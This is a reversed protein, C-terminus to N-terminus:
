YWLLLVTETIFVCVRISEGVVVVVITVCPMLTVEARSVQGVAANIARFSFRPVLEDGFGEQREAKTPASNDIAHLQRETGVDVRVTVFVAGTEVIVTTLGVM